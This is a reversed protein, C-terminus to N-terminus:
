TLGDCASLHHCPVQALLSIPNSIWLEGGIFITEECEIRGFSPTIEKANAVIAALEARLLFIRGVSSLRWLRVILRHEESITRQIARALDNLVFANAQANVLVAIIVVAKCALVDFDNKNIWVALFDRPLFVVGIIVAGKRSTECRRAVAQHAAHAQADVRARWARSREVDLLVLPRFELHSQIRRLDRCLEALVHAQFSVRRGVGARGDIFRHELETDDALHLHGIPPAPEAPARTRLRPLLFDCM